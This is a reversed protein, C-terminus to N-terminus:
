KAIKGATESLRKILTQFDKQRRMPDFSEDKMKELLEATMNNGNATGFEGYGNGRFFLSVHRAEKDFELTAEAHDASKLLEKMALRKDGNKAYIRAKRLSCDQLCTHFFGYDEKEFLVRLIEEFKQLIALEEEDTVNQSGDALTVSANQVMAQYLLMLLVCTRIQNFEVKNKGSSVECLMNEMSGNMSPLKWALSIAKKEDGLKHYSLCLVQKALIRRKEEPCEEAIIEGYQVAKKCDEESKANGDAKSKMQYLLMLQEMVDFRKPFRKLANLLLKEAKAYHSYFIQSKAEKLIDQVEQERMQADIGLLDDASVDLVHCLIPIMSIDPLTKGTEWQSVASVSVHMLEALREQTIGAKKRYASINKGLEKM